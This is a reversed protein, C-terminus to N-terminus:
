CNVETNVHEYPRTNRRPNGSIDMIDKVNVPEKNNKSQMLLLQKFNSENDHHGRVAVGQRALYRLSNFIQKLCWTAVKRQLEGPETLNVFLIQYKILLLLNTCLQLILLVKTM